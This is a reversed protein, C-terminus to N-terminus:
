SRARRRPAPASNEPTARAPEGQADVALTEILGRSRLKEFQANGNTEHDDVPASEQGPGLYVAKGSNLELILLQKARNAIKFAM